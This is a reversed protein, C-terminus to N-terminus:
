RLKGPAHALDAEDATAVPLLVSAVSQLCTAALGFGMMLWSLGLSLPIVTNYTTEGWLDFGRELAAWALGGLTVAVAANPAAALWYRRRASFRDVIIGVRVNGGARQVAPLCLWALGVMLFDEVTEYTGSLPSDLYRRGVVDVTIALMMLIVIVGGAASLLVQTGRLARDFGRLFGHRGHADFPRLEPEAPM